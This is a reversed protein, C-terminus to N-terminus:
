IESRLQESLVHGFVSKYMELVAEIHLREDLKNLLGLRVWSYLDGYAESMMAADVTSRVGFAVPIGGEQNYSARMAQAFLVIKEIFREDMSPAAKAVIGVEEEKSPYSLKEFMWRSLSATNQPQTGSYRGSMDVRGTTNMTGFFRVDAGRAVVEGGFAKLTLFNSRLFAQGEAMVGPRIYDMENLIVRTNDRFAVPVPGYTNATVVGKEAEVLDKSGLLDSVETEETFQIIVVDDNLAGFFAELGESKGTGPDGTLALPIGTTISAIIAKVVKQSFVWGKPVEPTKASPEVYREIYVDEENPSKLPFGFLDEALVFETERNPSIFLPQIAVGSLSAMQLRTWEGGKKNQYGKRIVNTTAKAGLVEQIKKM